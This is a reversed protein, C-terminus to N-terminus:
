QDAEHVGRERVVGEQGDGSANAGGSAGREPVGAAAQARRVAGFLGLTHLATMPELLEQMAPSLAEYAAYMNSWCTDGGSPPVHQIHLISAM